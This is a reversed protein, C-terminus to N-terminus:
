APLRLHATDVAPVLRTATCPTRPLAAADSHTYAHPTLCLTRHPHIPPLRYIASHTSRFHFSSLCPAAAAHRLRVWDLIWGSNVRLFQPLHPLLRWCLREARGTSGAYPPTRVPVTVPVPLTRCLGTRYFRFRTFRLDFVASRPLPLPLCRPVLCRFSSCPAADLWGTRATVTPVAFRLVAPAAHHSPLLPTGREAATFIMCVHLATFATPRLHLHTVGNPLYPTPAPSGPLWGYGPHPARPAHPAFHRTQLTTAFVRLLIVRTPLHHHQAPTTRRTTLSSAFAM